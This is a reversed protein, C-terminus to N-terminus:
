PGAGGAGIVGGDAEIELADCSREIAGTMRVTVVGEGRTDMVAPVAGPPLEIDRRCAEAARARLAPDLVLPTPRWPGTLEALTALRVPPNIVEGDSGCAVAALMAAILAALVRRKM